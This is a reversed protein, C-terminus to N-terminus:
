NYYEQRRIMDRKKYVRFYAIDAPIFVFGLNYHNNFNRYCLAYLPIGNDMYSSSNINILGR